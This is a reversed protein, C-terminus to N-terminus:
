HCSLFLAGIGVGKAFKAFEETDRLPDRLSVMLILGLGTLVHVAPLMAPDCNFGRVRWAMWVVWFAAFYIGCWKLFDRRFEPFTRVIWLPKLRSLRVHPTGSWMKALSGINAIPRHQQLYGFLKEAVEDREQETTFFPLYPTIQGAATVANLDLPPTAPTERYAKASYVLTLGGAVFLSALLLWILGPLRLRKRARRPKGTSISTTLEQAAEWSKTVAL